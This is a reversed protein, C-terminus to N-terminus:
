LNNIRETLPTTTPSGLAEFSKSNWGNMGLEDDNEVSNLADFLNLNSVEQRTVEAQKQKGSINAGNKKSVPQYVQKTRKFRLKPVVQVGRTAQRLNKLNKLVDLVVLKPVSTGITDKLEVDARLEIMERAFSSRCWSEMCMSFTYFNLMLPTGLKTAIAGLGDKSFCWLLFM